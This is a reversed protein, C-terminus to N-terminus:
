ARIGARKKCPPLPFSGTSDIARYNIASRQSTLIQIFLLPARSHRTHRQQLIPLLLLLCLLTIERPRKLSLPLTYYHCYM